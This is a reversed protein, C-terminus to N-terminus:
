AVAHADSRLPMQGKELAQESGIPYRDCLRRLVSARILCSYAIDSLLNLSFFPGHGSDGHIAASSSQSIANGPISDIMLKGVGPFGFITELRCCCVDVAQLWIV